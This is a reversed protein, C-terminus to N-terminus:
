RVAFSGHGEIVLGDKFTLVEARDVGNQNRFAIVITDTGQYVATVEFRLNPNQQLAAHWYRRLADKGKVVGDAAFGVQQAVPSTFVADDHFHTLVAEVDRSNWGVEWARAFTWADPCSAM